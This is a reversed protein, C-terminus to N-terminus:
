QMLYTKDTREAPGRTHSKLSQEQCHFIDHIQYLPNTM